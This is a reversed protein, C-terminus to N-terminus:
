LLFIHNIKQLIVDATEGTKLTFSDFLLLLIYIIQLDAYHQIQLSEHVQTKERSQIIHM